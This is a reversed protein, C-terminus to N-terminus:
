GVDNLFDQLVANFEEPAHEHVIHSASEIVRSHAQPLRQQVGKALMRFLAPSEAGSVLLVPVRVNSFTEGIM